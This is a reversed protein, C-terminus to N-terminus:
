YHQANPHKVKTKPPNNVEAVEPPHLPANLSAVVNYLQMPLQEQSHLFFFSNNGLLCYLICVKGGFM